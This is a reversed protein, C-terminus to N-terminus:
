RSTSGEQEKEVRNCTLSNNLDENSSNFEKKSKRKDYGSWIWDFIKMLLDLGLNLIKEASWFLLFLYVTLSALQNNEVLEVLDVLNM